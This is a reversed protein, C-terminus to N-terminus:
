TPAKNNNIKQFHASKKSPLVAPYISEDNDIIRNMLDEKGKFSKPNLHTHWITNLIKVIRKKTSTTWFTISEFVKSDTKFVLNNYDINDKDLKFSINKDFIKVSLTDKILRYIKNDLEKLRYLKLNQEGNNIILSQFSPDSFDYSINTTKNIIRVSDNTIILNGNIVSDKLDITGNGSIEYRNHAKIKKGSYLIQFFKITCFVSLAFLCFLFKYSM